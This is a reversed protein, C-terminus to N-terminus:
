TPGLPSGFVSTQHPAPPDPLVTENWNMTMLKMDSHCLIWRLTVWSLEIFLLQRRGETLLQSPLGMIKWGTCLLRSHFSLSSSFISCQIIEPKEARADTENGLQRVETKMTQFPTALYGHQPSTPIETGHSLESIKSIELWQNRRWSIGQQASPCVTIELATNVKTTDDSCKLTNRIMTCRGGQTQM